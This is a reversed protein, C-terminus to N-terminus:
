HKQLDKLFDAPGTKIEDIAEKKLEEESELVRNVADFIFEKAEFHAFPKPNHHSRHSREMHKKATAM